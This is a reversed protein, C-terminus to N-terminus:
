RVSVIHQRSACLWKSAASRRVVNSRACRVFRCPVDASFVVSRQDCRRASSTRRRGRHAARLPNGDIHQYASECRAIRSMSVFRLPSIKRSRRVLWGPLAHHASVPVSSSRGAPPRHTSEPLRPSAKRCADPSCPVSLPSFTRSANARTRPHTPHSKGPYRSPRKRFTSTLRKPFRPLTSCRM